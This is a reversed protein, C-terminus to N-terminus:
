RPCAVYARQWLVEDRKVQEHPPFRSGAGGCPKLGLERLLNLVYHSGTRGAFVRCSARAFDKRQTCMTWAQMAHLFATPDLVRLEHCGVLAASRGARAAARDFRPAIFGAARLADLHMAFAGLVQVIGANDHAYRQALRAHVRQINWPPADPRWIESPAPSPQLADLKADEARVLAATARCAPALLRGAQERTILAAVVHRLDHDALLRLLPPQMSQTGHTSQGADACAIEGTPRGTELNSLLYDPITCFFRSDGPSRACAVKARIIGTSSNPAISRIQIAHAPCSAYMASSRSRSSSYPLARRRPEAARNRRATGGRPEAAYNRLATGGRLETPRKQPASGGRVRAARECARGPGASLRLLCARADKM